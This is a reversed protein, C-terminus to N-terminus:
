SKWGNGAFHRDGASTFSANLLVGFHSRPLLVELIFHIDGLVINLLVSVLDKDFYMKTENSKM